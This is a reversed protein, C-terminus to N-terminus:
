SCGQNNCNSQTGKEVDTSGVDRERELETDKGEGKRTERDKVGGSGRECNMLDM